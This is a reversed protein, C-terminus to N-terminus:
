GVFVEPIEKKRMAWKLVNWLVIDFAKEHDVFYMLSKERLTM